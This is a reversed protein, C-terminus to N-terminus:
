NYVAYLWKLECNVVNDWYPMVKKYRRPVLPSVSFNGDRKKKKKVPKYSDLIYSYYCSPEPSDYNTHYTAHPVRRTFAAGVTARHTFVRMGRYNNYRRMGRWALYAILGSLCRIRSVWYLRVCSYFYRSASVGMQEIRFRVAALHPM